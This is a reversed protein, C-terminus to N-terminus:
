FTSLGGVLPVLTGLVHLTADPSFVNVHFHFNLFELSVNHSRKRPIWVKHRRSRQYEAQM